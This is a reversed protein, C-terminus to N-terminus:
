NGQLLYQYVALTERACNDWTFHRAQQRGKFALSARLQADSLIREMKRTIAATDEPNVLLAGSGAVEPLSGRDSVLSATGCAMAELPPFGFGEYLSPFVFMAASSYLAPLHGDPVFGLVKLWGRDRLRELAAYIPKDKWGGLGAVALPYRERLSRPLREYARVLRILNKRPELTGVTLIYGEWRLGYLDLLRSALKRPVPKFKPDLGEYIVSIREEPVHLFQIIEQQTFRSVAILHARQLTAPLGQQIWDLRAQPHTQPYRIFSLDHITAVVPCDWHDAIFNTAHYIDPRRLCYELRAARKKLGTKLNEPVYRAWAGAHDRGAVLPRGAEARAGKGQLKRRLQYFWHIGYLYNVIPPSDLRVLAQGLERTYRGVGTQPILLPIGDLAVRM